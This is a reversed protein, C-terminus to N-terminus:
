KPTPMVKWCTHLQLRIQLVFHWGSAKTDRGGLAQTSLRLKRNTQLRLNCLCRTQDTLMGFCVDCCLLFARPCRYIGSPAVERVENGCCEYYAAFYSKQRRVLLPHCLAPILWALEPLGLGLCIENNHREGGRRSCCWPQAAQSEHLRM